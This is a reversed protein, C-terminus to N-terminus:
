TASRELQAIRKLAERKLAAADQAIDLEGARELHPVRGELAAILERLDDIRRQPSTEPGLRGHTATPEEM